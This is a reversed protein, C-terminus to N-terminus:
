KLQYYLAISSIVSTLHSLPTWLVIGHLNRSIPNERKVDDGNKPYAAEVQFKGQEKKRIARM